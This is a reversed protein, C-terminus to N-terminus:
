DEGEIQFEKRMKQYLAWIKRYTDFRPRRKGRAWCRVTMPTTGLEKAIARQTWGLSTLAALLEAAEKM